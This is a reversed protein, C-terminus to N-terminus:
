YPGTFVLLLRELPVSFSSSIPSIRNVKPCSIGLKGSNNDKENSSFYLFHGCIFLDSETLLNIPFIDISHKHTGWVIRAALFIITILAFIRARM